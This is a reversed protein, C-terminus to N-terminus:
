AIVLGSAVVTLLPLRGRSGRSLPHNMIFDFYDTGM